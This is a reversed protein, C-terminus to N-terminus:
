YGFFLNDAGSSITRGDNQLGYGYGSEGIPTTIEEFTNEKVIKRSLLARNWKFVDTVTSFIGGATWLLDSSLGKFPTDGLHGTATTIGDLNSEAIGIKDFFEEEIYEKYTKDSLQEIILGPLLYNSNNYCCESKKSTKEYESFIYPLFIRQDIPNQTFVDGIIISYLEPYSNMLDYTTGLHTMSLGLPM